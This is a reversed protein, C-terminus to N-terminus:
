PTDGDTPPAPPPNSRFLPDVLGAFASRVEDLQATAVGIIRSVALGDLVSFALRLGTRAFAEDPVEPFLERFAAVATDFFREELEVFRRHLARDTRAAVALELWAEFSAGFCLTWLQELAVGPRRQDPAVTEFAARFDAMRRDLLHEVAALVLDDKTPYHHVQAGRSVGARRVVETTSTGAWGKEVLTAVTADLLRTRTTASREAQTRRSAPRGARTPATAATPM